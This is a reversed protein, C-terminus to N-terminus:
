VEEKGVIHDALSHKLAEEADLRGYEDKMLKDLTAKTFKGHEMYRAHVWQFHMKAYEASREAEEPNTPQSFTRGYHLYHHGYQYIYREGPTGAAALLSGASAAEGMVYTKVTVDLEKAMDFAMLYSKLVSM